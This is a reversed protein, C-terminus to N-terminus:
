AMTELMEPTVEYRLRDGSTFRRFEDLMFCAMRHVERGTSGAIHPTLIINPLRFFESDPEPPEPCTVDLIATLDPREGLARILDAEVVQAGRGTNIFTGGPVMKSFHSYNLMGATQNNNATHNSITQCSSFIEDLSCLRVNLNKAESKPLYPDYVLLELSSHRLIRCVLGGITGAGIIGVKCGYNGPFTRIDQKAEKEKGRSFLQSARFFGKNALLIQSAAYEAVPIANAQWASFVKIGRSLFPRAFYQVSGAAYFVAQLSPFYSTIESDTLRPMGWTSFIYQVNALECTLASLQDYTIVQRYLGSEAELASIIEKPYVQKISDPNGLLISNM